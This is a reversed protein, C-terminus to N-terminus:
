SHKRPLSKSDKERDTKNPTQYIDRGHISGEPRATAMHAEADGEGETVKLHTFKTEDSM